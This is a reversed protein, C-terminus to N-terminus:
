AVIFLGQVVYQAAPLLPASLSISEITIKLNPVIYDIEYFDKQIKLVKVKIFNGTVEGVISSITDVVSKM